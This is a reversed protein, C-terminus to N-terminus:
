SNAGQWEDPHQREPSVITGNPLNQPGGLTEWCPIHEPEDDLFGPRPTLKVPHRNGGAEVWYALQGFARLRWFKACHDHCDNYGVGGCHFCIAQLVGDPDTWRSGGKCAWCTVAGSTTM